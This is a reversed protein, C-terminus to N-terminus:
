KLFVIMQMVVIYFLKNLINDKINKIQNHLMNFLENDGLNLHLTKFECPSGNDFLHHIYIYECNVPLNDAKGLNLLTYIIIIQTDADINNLESLTSHLAFHVKKNM